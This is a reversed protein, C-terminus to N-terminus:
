SVLGSALLGDVTLEVSERITRTPAWGLARMASCDLFIFPNDGIWGRTGGSYSREPVVGLRECIWGVSENVTCYADSGLNLVNVREGARELGILIADICDGIHLYSKRQSGDGLIHLRDPHERLQRVFDVVHGHTYREGLLSVFRFIWAQMGFGECYAEIFGEAAMKSAGYLSTQIPIAAHEPTPIQKAEGYISGTSSFAIKKVEAVRMAELINLTVRANQEFDRTPHDTGFRVDANAAFHFVIDAGRFLPPLAEHRLLDLRHLEFKSSQHASSLFAEFGTSFDDIGVVQHGLRLLRDTM